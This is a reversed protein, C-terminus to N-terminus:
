AAVVKDLSPAPCACAGDPCDCAKATTPCSCQGDPCAHAAPTPCACAGDPCGCDLRSRAERKENIYLTAARLLCTIILSFFIAYSVGTSILIGYVGACTLGFYVQGRRSSPTTGPDTIMYNTFLVFAVGTMMGLPAWVNDGLFAARLVAQAFYGGVWALILPMKMTLKANLMTGLTLVLLPLGWDFPQDFNNTFHYPPVFGVTTTFLLIMAIGFNSPNLVHRLRGRVKVRLLYKSAVAIVVGALYPWITNAYILMSLALAAIHAPMLFYALNAWSGAYEPTRNYVWADLREFLLSVAYSLLVAIIPLIPQQEFGLVTHGLINLVSISIAFRLLAARRPDTPGKKESTEAAPAVDPTQSDAAALPQPALPLGNEAHHRTGPPATTITATM